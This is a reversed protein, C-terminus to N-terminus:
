RIIRAGRLEAIDDILADTKDKVDRVQAVLTNTKDAVCTLIDIKNSLENLKEAAEKLRAIELATIEAFRAGEQPIGNSMARWLNASWYVLEM